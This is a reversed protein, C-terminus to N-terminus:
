RVVDPVLRESQEGAGRRRAAKNLVGGGKLSKCCLGSAYVHERLLEAATHM